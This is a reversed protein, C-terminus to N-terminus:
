EPLTFAYLKDNASGTKLRPYGSGWYVVGDVVAPGSNVSAGSAFRWLIEGTVADLAFMTPKRARKEMSGGFVVGNAVTVAGEARSRNPDTTQWLITGTKADLASWFGRETFRGTGQGNRILEWRAHLSNVNAVYVRESDTASGWLIGGVDGPPGVQTEWVTEGTAPELAHMRGNKQGVALLERDGSAFLMPGQGIDHDPGRPSPCNEPNVLEFVCAVTWADFPVLPRAWKLAGTSLDLAIVSDFHNGDEICQRVDAAVGPAARTAAEVCAAVSAPVSYNNGTTVYLSGRLVDVVPTSGWVANGSYGPVDPVTLTQWLVSGTELDIAAVSGRFDCCPYDRIAAAHAEEFSSVGVYVRRQHAVPSQTVFASPHPDISRSWLLNGGSKDVAFVRAGRLRYGGQDGFVLTGGAVAPTTRSFNRSVGTLESVSRSWVSAGTERDIRHIRGGWDPVYVSDEDVAPTASVSGATQFVWKTELRSVNGAQLITEGAQHRTNHIGNGADLWTSPPRAEDSLAIGALALVALSLRIGPSSVGPIRSELL